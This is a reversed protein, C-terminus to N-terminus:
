PGHGSCSAPCKQRRCGKGEYGDFCECEGSARNCVGKDSCEAYKHCCAFLAVVVMVCVVCHSLRAYVVSLRAM